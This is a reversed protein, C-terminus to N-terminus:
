YIAKLRLINNCIAGDKSNASSGLDAEVLIYPKVIKNNYGYLVAWM